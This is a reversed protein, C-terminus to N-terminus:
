LTRQGGATKHQRRAGSAGTGLTLTRESRVAGIAEDLRKRYAELVTRPVRLEAASLGSHDPGANAEFNVPNDPDTLQFYRATLLDMTAHWHRRAADSRFITRLRVELAEGRIRNLHYQEGLWEEMDILKQGRLKQRDRARWYRQTALYMASAIETMSVILGERLQHDERRRQSSATIWAVVPGVIMTGLLVTILPGVAQIILVQEFPLAAM